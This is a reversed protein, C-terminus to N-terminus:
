LPNLVSSVEVDYKPSKKPNLGIVVLFENTYAIKGSAASNTVTVVLLIVPWVAVVCDIIGLSTETPSGVALKVFYATSVDNNVPSSVVFNFSIVTVPELTFKLPNNSGCNVATDADEIINMTLELVLPVSVVTVDYGNVNVCRSM